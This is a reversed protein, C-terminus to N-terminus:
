RNIWPEIFALFKTAQGILVALGAAMFLLVWRWREERGYAAGAAFIFGLGIIVQVIGFILGWPM